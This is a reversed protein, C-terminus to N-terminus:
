LFDYIEDVQKPSEAKFCFHHLGPASFKYPYNDIKAQEIWLGLKQPNIWGAHDKKESVQIYGLKDFLQRYFKSSQNFNSVSLKIHGSSDNYNTM